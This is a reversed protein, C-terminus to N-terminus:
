LQARGTHRSGTQRDQGVRSRITGGPSLGGDLAVVATCSIGMEGQRGSKWFDSAATGPESQSVRRSIGALYARIVNEADVPPVSEQLVCRVLAQSLGTTAADVAHGGLAHQDRELDHGGVDTSGFSRLSPATSDTRRDTPPSGVCSEQGPGVVVTGFRNEM